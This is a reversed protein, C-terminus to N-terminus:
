SGRCRSPSSSARSTRTNTERGFDTLDGTFLVADPVQPMKMLHEVCRELAAQTDVVRYSLKGGAKIHMDTVQALLFRDNM